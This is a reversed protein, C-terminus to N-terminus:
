YITLDFEQLKVRIVTRNLALDVKLKWIAQYISIQNTIIANYTAKDAPTTAGYISAKTVGLVKIMMSNLTDFTAKAMPINGAGIYADMEDVKAMFSAATVSQASAHQVSTVTLSATLLFCAFLIRKM